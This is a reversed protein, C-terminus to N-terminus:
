GLIGYLKFTGSSINGSAMLFQLANIVATTNRRGAALSGVFGSNGTSYNEATIILCNNSISNAPNILTIEFSNTRSSTSALNGVDTRIQATNNNQATFQGSSSWFGYYFKCFYYDSSGSDFSSGNNSSTRTWFGINNNACQLNSIVFKYAFYSTTLGTFTVSSQNSASVTALLQWCGLLNQNIWSGLSASDNSVYLQGATGTGANQLAAGSTAGGTLLGYATTLTSLGTGGADVIQPKTQYNKNVIVSM